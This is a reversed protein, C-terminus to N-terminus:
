VQIQTSSPFRVHYITQLMIDLFQFVVDILKMIVKIYIYTYMCVCVHM